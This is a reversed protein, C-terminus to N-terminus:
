KVKWVDKGQKKGYLIREKTALAKLKLKLLRADYFTNIGLRKVIDSTPHWIADSLAVLIRENTVETSSAPKEPKSETTITPSPKHIPTSIPKSPPPIVTKRETKPTAATVIPKSKSQTPKEIKTVFKSLAPMPIVARKAERIEKETANPDSEMTLVENIKQELTAKKLNLYKKDFKAINYISNVFLPINKEIVRSRKSRRERIEKKNMYKRLKRGIAELCFKVERILVEDEALANKSQSKFMLHTYPGSCNIYIIYNGKPIGNDFTDSVKYGKWKM